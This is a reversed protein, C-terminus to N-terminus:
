DIAFIPPSIQRLPAARRFIYYLPLMLAAAHTAHRSAADAFIAPSVFIM